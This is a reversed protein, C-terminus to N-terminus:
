VYFNNSLTYPYASLLVPFSIPKLEGAVFNGDAVFLWNAASFPV